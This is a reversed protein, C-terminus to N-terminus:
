PPCAFPVPIHGPQRDIRRPMRLRVMSVLSCLGAKLVVGGVSLSTPRTRAVSAGFALARSNGKKIGM